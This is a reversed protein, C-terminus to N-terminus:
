NMLHVRRKRPTSGWLFGRNLKDIEDCIAIPIHTTQMIYYPIPGSASQILTSRGLDDTKAIGSADCIARMLRRLINKTIFIKSKALSVTQRSWKSFDDLSEKVVTVKEINAESFLVLDDAFFIHSIEPGGRSARVKEVAEKVMSIFDEKVIEWNKQFFIAQFGDPSPAKLPGISFMAKEIEDASVPRHIFELEERPITPFSIPSGPNIPDEEKGTYLQEQFKRCRNVDRSNFNSKDASSAITNFNGGLAWPRSSSDSKDKMYRWLEERNGPIPSGYTGVRIIRLSCYGQLSSYDLSSPMLKNKTTKSFAEKHSIDQNNAKIRQIEERFLNSMYWAM